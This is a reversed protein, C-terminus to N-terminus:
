TLGLWIYGAKTPRLLLTRVEGLSFGLDRGRRIFKLRRLHWNSYVRYNGQTRVPTALLGIREYYRITEVKTSSRQAMEGIRLVESAM